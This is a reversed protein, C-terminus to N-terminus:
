MIYGRGRLEETLAVMENNVGTHGAIQAEHLLRMREVLKNINNYYIVNTTYSDKMSMGKGAVHKNQFLKAIINKYKFSSSRHLPSDLKYHKKHANTDILIKKFMKLDKATYKMPTKKLILEFLGITGPYTKGKVTINDTDDVILTSDGIMLGGKEVRAGYVHYKRNAITGHLMKLVYKRTLEGHSSIDKGLVSLNSEGPGQQQQKVGVAGQDEMEEEEEDDDDGEEGSDDGFDFNADAEPNGEAVEVSEPIEKYAKLKKAEDPFYKHVIDCKKSDKQFDRLSILVIDGQM